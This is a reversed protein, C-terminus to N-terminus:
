RRRAARRLAATEVLLSLPDRRLLELRGRALSQGAAAPRLASRAGVRLALGAPGALAGLCMRATGLLRPAPEHAQGLDELVLADHRVALVRPVRWGVGTSAALGHAEGHFFGPIPQAISKTVVTAGSATRIRQTHCIIGGALPDAAVVAGLGLEACARAAADSM